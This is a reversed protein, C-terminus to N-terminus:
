TNIWSQYRLLEVLLVQASDRNAILKNRYDRNAARRQQEYQLDPGSDSGLFMIFGRRLPGILEALRKSYFEGMELASIFEILENAQDQLKTTDDDGNEVSALFMQRIYIPHFQPRLILPDKFKRFMKLKLTDIKRTPNHQDRIHCNPCLPLLNELENHTADEDIHHIHPRDGGCVACRHDYENLLADRLKKLISERVM